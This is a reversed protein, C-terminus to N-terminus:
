FWGDLYRKEVSAEVAILAAEILFTGSGCMPDVFNSEGRWGTKMIIGAALVENIPAATQEVRYGRKSLPEGGQSLGISFNM